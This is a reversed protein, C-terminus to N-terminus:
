YVDVPANVQRLLEFCRQRVYDDPQGSRMVTQLADELDPSIKATGSAPALVDVAQARVGANEDHQLVYVLADRAAADERFQRLGEVAKLRVAANGDKRVANVLADRVDHGAQGQLMEVSDIRTGPDAATTTAALLWERIEDNNVPGTIARDQEFVIRVHNDEIPEINRIRAASPNVVSMNETSAWLGGPFGNRDVYRGASFGAFVLFSALAMQFSWRPASFGFWAAWGQRFEAKHGSEASSVASRLERRCEALLELPVDVREATVTAHWAKEGALALKCAACESVHRDLEEEEAFELEGYWYLSLKRQAQQCTM